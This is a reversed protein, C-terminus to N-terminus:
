LPVFIKWRCVVGGKKLLINQIYLELERSSEGKEENLINGNGRNLTVL